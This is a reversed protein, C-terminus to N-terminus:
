CQPDMGGAAIIVCEAENRRLAVMGGMVRYAHPWGLPSYLACCVEEGATFGLESLRRACPLGARLSIIRAKEGLKLESLPKQEM